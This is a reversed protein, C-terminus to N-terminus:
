SALPRSAKRLISKPSEQHRRRHPVPWVRPWLSSCPEFHRKRLIVIIPAAQMFPFYNREPAVSFGQRLRFSSEPEAKKGERAGYGGHCGPRQRWECAIYVISCWKTLGALNCDGCEKKKKQRSVLSQVHSFVRSPEHPSPLYEEHRRPAM